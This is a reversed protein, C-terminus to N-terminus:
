ATARPGLVEHPRCPGCMVSCGAASSTCRRHTDPPGSCSMVAGPRCFDPPPPPPPAFCMGKPRSGGGSAGFAIPWGAVIGLGKGVHAQAMANRICNSQGSIRSEYYWYCGHGFEDVFSSDDALESASKCGVTQRIPKAPEEPDPDKEFLLKVQDKTLTTNFVKFNKIHGTYPWEGPPRRTVWTKSNNLATQREADTAYSTQM